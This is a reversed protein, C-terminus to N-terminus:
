KTKKRNVYRKICWATLRASLFIIPIGVIQSVLAILAAEGAGIVTIVAGLIAFLLLWGRLNNKEKYYAFVLLPWVLLIM